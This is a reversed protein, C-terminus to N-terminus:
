SVQFPTASFAGHTLDAEGRKRHENRARVRLRYYGAPIYPFLLLWSVQTPGNVCYTGALCYGVIITPSGPTLINGSNDTKILYGIVCHDGTGTFANTGVARNNPTDIKIM